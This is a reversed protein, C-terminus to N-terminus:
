ARCLTLRAPMLQLQVRSGEPTEQWGYWRRSVVLGAPDVMDGDYMIQNM